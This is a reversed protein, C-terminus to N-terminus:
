DLLIDGYWAEVQSRTNDTDTMLGIALLKGPEKGFAKRYDERLDREHCRWRNAHRTGSDVVIMRVRDTHPNPIVTGEPRKRGWIYMLTAYPMERGSILRAMEDMLQDKLPLASKDGDFAAFIRLPADESSGRANDAEAVINATKWSWRLKGPSRGEGPNGLPVFLGSASSNARARLVRREDVSDLMYDTPTKSPNVLWRQWGEPLSQTQDAVSFPPLVPTAAGPGGVTAAKAPRRIAACDAVADSLALAAAQSPASSRTPRGASEGGTSQVATCGALALVAAGSLAASWAM